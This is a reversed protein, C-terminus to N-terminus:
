RTNAHDTTNTQFSEQTAARYSELGEDQRQWQEYVKMVERVGPRSLAEKLMASRQQERRCAISKEHHQKTKM